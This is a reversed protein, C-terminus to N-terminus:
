TQSEGHYGSNTGCILPMTNQNTVSFGDTLCQTAESVAVGGASNLAQGLMKFVSTTSTSPGTELTHISVYNM